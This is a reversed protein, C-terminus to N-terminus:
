GSRGAAHHSVMVRTVPAVLDLQGREALVAAVSGIMSKTVSMLLHLTDTGMGGPYEEAVVAGDHMVLFGDTYTTALVAGVTTVAAGLPTVPLDALPQSHEPLKAISGNGRSIRATPVIERAHQFSWQLFQPHAM